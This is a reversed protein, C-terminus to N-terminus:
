FTCVAVQHVSATAGVQRQAASAAERAAALEESLSRVKEHLAAVEAAAGDEVPERVKAPSATPTSSM